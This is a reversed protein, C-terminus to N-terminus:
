SITGTKQKKLLITIMILAACFASIAIYWFYKHQKECLPASDGVLVLNAWFNPTKSRETNNLYILKAKQLAVSKSYGERLLKHFENLIKATARDDAKWLSNVSSPTGAYAFGRAMSLLGENSAIVGEGTECASMIVLRTSDMRLGYLEELYLRDDLTDQGDPYFAIFSKAPDSLDAVAHTALHVVPFQNMNEMFRGKSADFNYFSRGSLGKIEDASSPLQNWYNGPIQASFPAFSLVQYSTLIPKATRQTISGASFEYRMAHAELMGIPNDGVPLSEFPLQSIVGDPIVIWELYNKLSGAVPSVLLNYLRQGAEPYKFRRGNETNRIATLWASADASLTQVSVPELAEFTRDTITFIYVQGKALYYSILAQGANIRRQLQIVTPAQVKYKDKYYGDDEELIKSARSLQLEYGTRERILHDTQKREHAEDIQLNLRAISFKLNRISQLIADAEHHGEGISMSAVNSMVISAKNMEAIYFAKEAFGRSPYLKHLNMSIAIAEEYVERSNKKLLLKSDDTDYNKEIYTIFELTLLYNNLSAELYKPEGSTNYLLHFLSAKTRLADFMRFYAFNGVFSSPSDFINKSKFNRSFIIISEQVARLAAMYEHKNRLLYANYLQSVGIDLSNLDDSSVFSHQIIKDLFYAASDYKKLQLYAYGIENSVGPIKIPDVKSYSALAERYRHLAANTRGLNLSVFDSTGNTKLLSKNLELAANYNGLKYEATAINMQINIASPHNAPYQDRIINLAQNFYTKSQFYNGNDYYLVGFTNYLRARDNGSTSKELIKEARKLFHRASDFNNLRYYASGLHTFLQFSLSDRITNNADNIAVARLYAIRSATFDPKLELLIAKKIYANFLLEADPGTASIGADGTIKNYLLLAQEDTGPTPNDLNFLRNAERFRNQLQERSFADQSVADQSLIGTLTSLLLFWVSIKRAVLNM